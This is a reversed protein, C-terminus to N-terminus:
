ESDGDLYNTLGANCKRKVNAQDNAIIENSGATAKIWRQPCSTAAFRIFGQAEIAVEQRQARCFDQLVAM